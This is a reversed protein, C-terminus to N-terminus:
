AKVIRCRTLETQKIGKYESHAKITGKLTVEDGEQASSYASTRWIFQHGQDDEFTFVNNWGFTGNFGRITKLTVTLEVVDKVNGYWETAPANETEWKRKIDKLYDDIISLGVWSLTGDNAYWGMTDYEEVEGDIRTAVVDDISVRVTPFETVEHDFHWGFADRYTAGAAKLEARIEYTKGMVIWAEGQESFGWSRLFAVNRANATARAKALRKEALKQNYEITRVVVSRSGRGSGGCMFCVGGEVYEYGPIYGKGGCKPCRCDTYYHTNNRDIRVLTMYPDHDYKSFNNDKVTLEIAM